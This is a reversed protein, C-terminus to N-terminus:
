PTVTSSRSSRALQDEPSESTLTIVWGRRLDDWALDYTATATCESAAASGGTAGLDRHFLYGVRYSVRNQAPAGLLTIHASNATVAKSGGPNFRLSFHPVVTVTDEDADPTWSAGHESEGEGLVKLNHRVMWDHLYSRLAAAATPQAVTAVVTRRGPRTSSGGVASKQGCGGVPALLLLVAIVLAIRSM